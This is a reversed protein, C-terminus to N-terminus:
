EGAAVRDLLMSLQTKAEVVGVTIMNSFSRLKENLTYVLYHFSAMKGPRNSVGTVARPVVLATRSWTGGRV